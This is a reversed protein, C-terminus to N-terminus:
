GNYAPLNMSRPFSIWLIDPINIDSSYNKKLVRHINKATHKSVDLDNQGGFVAFYSCRFGPFDDV